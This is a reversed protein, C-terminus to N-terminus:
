GGSRQLSVGCHGNCAYRGFHRRRKGLHQLRAAGPSANIALRGMPWERGDSTRLFADFGVAVPVNKFQVMAHLDIGQRSARTARLQTVSMFGRLASAQNPDSVVEVSQEDAPIIESRGRLTIDWEHTPPPFPKPMSTCGVVISIHPSYTVDYAGPPMSDGTFDRCHLTWGTGRIGNLGSAWWEGGSESSRSYKWPGMMVPGNTWKFAYGSSGLRITNRTFVPVAAGQSIRRRVLLQAVIGQELYTKWRSDDLRVERTLKKLSNEWNWVGPFRRTRKSQWSETSTHASRPPPFSEM